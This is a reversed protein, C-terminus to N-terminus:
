QRNSELAVKKGIVGPRRSEGQIKAAWEEFGDANGARLGGPSMQRASRTTLFVKARKQRTSGDQDAEENGTCRQSLLLWIWMDAASRLSSMSFWRTSKCQRSHPLGSSSHGQARPRNVM